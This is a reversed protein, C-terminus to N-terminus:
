QGGPAYVRLRHGDPDIATFTYGFDMATPSQIIAIGQQRWATHMAEVDAISAQAFALEGTAHGAAGEVAPAVEQRAWLGLKLGTDLAFLAFGPSAEIPARGLLRAYFAASEAPSAVYLLLFNPQQNM